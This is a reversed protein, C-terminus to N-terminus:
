TKASRVEVLARRAGTTYHEYISIFDTSSLLDTVGQIEDIPLLGGTKKKPDVIIIRDILKRRLAVQFLRGGGLIVINKKMQKVVPIIELLTKQDKIVSQNSSTSIVFFQKNKLVNSNKIKEYLISCLLIISDQVINEFIKKTGDNPAYPFALSDKTAKVIYATIM